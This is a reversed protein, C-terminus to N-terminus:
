YYVKVTRKAISVEQLNTELGYTLPQEAKEGAIPVSTLWPCSIFGSFTSGLKFTRGAAIVSVITIAGQSIQKFDGKEYRKQNMKHIPVLYNHSGCLISKFCCYGRSM